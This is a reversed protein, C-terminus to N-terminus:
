TTMLRLQNSERNPISVVHNSARDRVSEFRLQNSERNPISVIFWQDRPRPAEFRLQNSERNPISVHRLHWHSRTVFSRLQNSERNPISVLLSYRPAVGSDCNIPNGILSQFTNPHLDWPLLTLDCNIPNGILSQFRSFIRGNKALNSRLQNSERNPISVLPKGSRRLQRPYRLQNSERNPISVDSVQSHHILTEMDCNIPNGILSQFSHVPLGLVWLERM